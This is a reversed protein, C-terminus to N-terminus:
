NNANAMGWTLEAMKNRADSLKISSLAQSMRELKDPNDKFNIILEKLIRKDLLKDEILVAAGRDVLFRANDLQHLKAYPYPVLIAPAQMAVLEAITNAGARSIVLDAASFACDMRDLFAFLKHRVNLNGYEREFHEYKFYGALHITQIGCVGKDKLFELIQTNIKYSGQSGGIVLITFCKEDLGFYRRAEQRGIRKLEKRLPLGLFLSKNKIRDSIRTNPFSFIIKDAFGSLLRNALGLRVNQEHIFNPIGLFNACMIFPVSLYGGFGAIFDPKFKKILSRAQFFLGLLNYATLLSIRKKKLFVTDFKDKIIEREVRGDTTIFKISVSEDKDKLGQCFAVAPLIHGGSHSAVVFIKM